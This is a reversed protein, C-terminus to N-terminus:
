LMGSLLDKASMGAGSSQPLPDDDDDSEHKVTANGGLSVNIKNDPNTVVDTDFGNDEDKDITELARNYLEAEKEADPMPPLVESLDYLGGTDEIMQIVKKDLPKEKMEIYSKDYKARKNEITRKIVINHLAPNEINGAGIQRIIDDKVAMPLNILYVMKGDPNEAIDFPSKVVLCQAVVRRKSRWKASREKDDAHWLDWGHQCLKCKEYKGNSKPCLSAEGDIWHSEFEIFLGNSYPHSGADPLLRVVLEDGEKLDWYPVFRADRGKNEKEKEKALLKKADFEFKM